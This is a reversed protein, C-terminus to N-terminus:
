TLPRFAKTTLLLTSSLFTTSTPRLFLDTPAVAMFASEEREWEMKVMVISVMAALAAHVWAPDTPAALHRM